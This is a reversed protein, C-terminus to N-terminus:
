EVSIIYYYLPQGGKYMEIDRGAFLGTLEERLAAATESDVPEGSYLTILEDDDKVMKFLLDKVVQNVDSGVAVLNDDNIAIIDNQSIETGNIKSDCIAYTVQGSKIRKIADGMLEVNDELKEDPNFALMAAIGQPISRSKVVRVQKESVERVQEAALIINKNNPLIIIEQQPMAKLAQLFDETSPNMTQGGQIIKQIGLSQLIRSLGAGASVAIVGIGEKVAASQEEKDTFLIEAHQEKMNDIKINHLSGHLLCKDLVQGPNNTHIHIKVIKEDGVALVSDGFGAIMDRVTDPNLFQGRIMLETCYAFLIDESSFHEQPKLPAEDPLTDEEPIDEGRLYLLFGEYIHMLGKGGADVVGAEKLVPLMDPTKELILAAHDFVEQMLAPFPMERAACGAATKASERAVTLITGEVPKMVAKYATNVGEQMANAFERGNVVRKGELARAFGRFLQSLIVGSNGRAGLLSGLSLAGAMSSVSDETVKELEALASRMTLDMNTGTDGDPVPFTNLVNIIDRNNKLVRAGAILMKKLDTGTLQQM